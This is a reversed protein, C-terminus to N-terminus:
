EKPSLTAFYLPHAEPNRKVSEAGGHYGQAGIQGGKRPDRSPGERTAGPAGIFTRSGSARRARATEEV